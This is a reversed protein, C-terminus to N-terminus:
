TVQEGKWRLWSHIITDILAKAESISMPNKLHGRALYGHRAEDGIAGPHNSTGKFLRLSEQTAWGKQVIAPVGGVDAEIVECIRFLNVWTYGQSALLRLVSAVQDDRWALAVWRPIPDAQHFEEVIGETTVSSVSVSARIDLAESIFIFAHAKGDADVKTVHNVVLPERTGLTLRAAGTIQTLIERARELVAEADTLESLRTSKLVFSQGEQSISLQPSNLSKSLEQLDFNDGTITVCWEMADGADCLKLSQSRRSLRRQRTLWGRLAGWDPTPSGPGGAVKQGTGGQGALSGVIRGPYHKAVPPGAGTAPLAM